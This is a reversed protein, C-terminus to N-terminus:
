SSGKTRLAGTNNTRARDSSRSLLQAGAATAASGCLVTLTAAIGVLVYAVLAWGAGGGTLWTVAAGTLGAVIGTCLAGALM